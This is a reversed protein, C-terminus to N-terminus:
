KEPARAKLVFELYTESLLARLTHSLTTGCTRIRVRGPLLKPDLEELQPMPVPYHLHARPDHILQLHHGQVFPHPALLRQLKAPM